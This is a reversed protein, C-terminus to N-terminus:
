EEEGSLARSFAEAVSAMAEERPRRPLKLRAALKVVDSRASQELRMRGEFAEQKDFRIHLTLSEDLHKGLRGGIEGGVAAQVRSMAAGAAKPDREVATLQLLPQGFHGGLERREVRAGPAFLRLAKEVAEQSETAHVFAEVRIDRYGLAGVRM